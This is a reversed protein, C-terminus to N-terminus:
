TRPLQLNEAAIAQCEATYKVVSKSCPWIVTGCGMDTTV